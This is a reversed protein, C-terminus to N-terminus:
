YKPQSIYRILLPIKRICSDLYPFWVSTMQGALHKVLFKETKKYTFKTTGM